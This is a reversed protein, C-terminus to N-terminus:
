RGGRGAPPAAEPGKPAPRAVLLRDERLQAQLWTKWAALGAAGGRGAGRWREVLRRRPDLSAELESAEFRGTARSLEAESVAGQGLRGLLARTQAAAPELADEPGRLEVVLASQAGQGLLYADGRAGIDELAKGLLGGEGGLALATMTAAANGPGSADVLAGVFARPGTGPPTPLALVGGRPTPPSPLSPCSSPRNQRVLWRDISRTVVEIQAPSESALVAARLPSAALSAWRLRVLDPNGRTVVELMGWPILRGPQGPALLSAFTDRGRTDGLRALLSGRAAAVQAAGPPEALLGRAVVEAVRAALGAATEGSHSPAAHALLGSGDPGLWPEVSVGARGDIAAAAAVLALATAGAEGESEAGPCESALLVWLQGQGQEVAGRVDIMPRALGAAVGELSKGFRQSLATVRALDPDVVSRADTGEAAVALAVASWASKERAPRSLAWWAAAAAAERPDSMARVQRAVLAVSPERHAAVGAEIEQRIVGVARAAGDILEGGEAQPRESSGEAEVTVCSGNRRMTATVRRVVFSPGMAGLRPGLPSGVEAARSAFTMAAAPDEFRSALTLKVTGKRRRGETYVGPAPTMGWGEEAGEGAGIEAAIVTEAAKGVVARPGVIGFAVSSAGLRARRGELVEGTIAPLAEGPSIRPEGSCAAVPGLLVSDLVKERLAAVRAAALKIGPADAEGVPRTLAGLMATAMQDLGVADGAIAEARLGDRDARVVAGKVGATALRAEVIAAVGVSAWLGGDVAAGLVIAAKGDGEREVVVVKAGSARGQVELGRAV